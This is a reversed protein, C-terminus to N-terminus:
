SNVKRFSEYSHLQPGVGASPDKTATTTSAEEDDDDELQASGSQQECVREKWYSTDLKSIPALISISAEKWASVNTAGSGSTVPDMTFNVNDANRTLTM